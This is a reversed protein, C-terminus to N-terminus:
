TKRQALQWNTYEKEGTVERDIELFPPLEVKEDMSKLEVELMPGMTAPSMFLDLEFTHGEWDFIVRTKSVTQYTSRMWLTNFEEATVEREDEENIGGEVHKKITHIYKSTGGSHVARVREIVGEEGTEIFRQHISITRMPVPWSVLPPYTRVLFKREIELPM